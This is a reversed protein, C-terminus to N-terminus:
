PQGPGALEIRMGDAESKPFRARYKWKTQLSQDGWVKNEDSRYNFYLEVEGQKGALIRAISEEDPHQFKDGNTSILYRKARAAQLLEPSTNGRSGHHAVKFAELQVRKKGLGETISQAIVSPFADAAFLCAQGQYEALLAISSGNTVADDEKFPRQALAAVDPVGGLRKPHLPAAGAEAAAGPILGAKVCEAEYKDKLNALATLTPSLITVAMGGPLHVTQPKPGDAVAVAEGKMQKNWNLNQTEILETLREGSPGGLRVHPVLHRWGNFWVEDITVGSPLGGLFKVIGEIHDVDVHSIVLLEINCQGYDAVAQQARAKIAEATKGIGGDILLRSPAAADGYEIWLCDGYAAPLMEITFM